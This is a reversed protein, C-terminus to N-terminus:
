VVSGGILTWGVAIHFQLTLVSIPAPKTIPRQGKSKNRTAASSM